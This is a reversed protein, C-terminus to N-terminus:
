CLATLGACGAVILWAPVRWAALAIFAALALPIGLPHAVAEVGIPSWLAAGLLGVVGANLGAVIRRTTPSGGLRNFVRLGGLGLLLGPLFIALVALAAGSWGAVMAGIWASVTFLPGPVAQAVGYGALFQDDTLLGGHVLPDRLLPLVVHGGGFVLGGAQFCTAVLQGLPGSPFVIALIVALTSIGLLFACVVMTTITPSRIGPDTQQEPLRLALYGALGAPVLAVVQAWPSPSLFCLIAVGAAISARIPDPCLSRAM